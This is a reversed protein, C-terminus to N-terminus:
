KKIKIEKKTVAEEIIKKTDMWRKDVTDEAKEEIEIEQTKNLFIYIEEDGWAYM